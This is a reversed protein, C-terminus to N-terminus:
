ACAVFAARLADEKGTPDSGLRFEATKDAKNVRAEDVRIPSMALAFHITESSLSDFTKSLYTMLDDLSAANWDVSPAPSTPVEVESLVFRLYSQTSWDGQLNRRAASPLYTSTM